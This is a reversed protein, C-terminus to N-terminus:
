SRSRRGAAPSLATRRIHLGVAICYSPSWFQESWLAQRIEPWRHARVRASSSTRHSLVLTFLAVKPSYSVLLHAHDTEFADLTTQYRGCVEEFAARLEAAVRATMAKKRYKPAPVVHVHLNEPVQRGSRYGDADM